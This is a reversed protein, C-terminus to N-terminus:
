VGIQLPLRERVMIEGGVVESTVVFIDNDNAKYLKVTIADSNTYKDKDLKVFGMYIVQEDTICQRYKNSFSQYM